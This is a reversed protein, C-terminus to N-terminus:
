VFFASSARHFPKDKLPTTCKYMKQELMDSNKIFVLPDSRTQFHQTPDGKLSKM